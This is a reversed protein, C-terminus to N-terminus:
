SMFKGLGDISEFNHSKFRLRLKYKWTRRLEGLLQFNPNKFTSVSQSGMKEWNM